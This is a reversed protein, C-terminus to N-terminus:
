LKFALSKNLDIESSIRWALEDEQGDVLSVSTLRAYWRGHIAKTLTGSFLKGSSQGGLDLKLDVYQDKEEDAPHSLYLHIVGPSDIIKVLEFTIRLTDPTIVLEGAVGLESANKEAEFDQNILKGQKYYDDIVMDDSMTFAIYVLGVGVFIVIFLPTFVFWGWFQTYWAASEDTSHDNTRM